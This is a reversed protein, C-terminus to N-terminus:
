GSVTTDRSSQFERRPELPRNSGSSQVSSIPVVQIIRARRLCCLIKHYGEQFEPVKWAYIFTDALTTLCWVLRLYKFLEIRWIKPYKKSLFLYFISPLTGVLYVTLIIAILVTTKKEKQFNNQQLSNQSPYVIKRQKWLFLYIKLYCFTLICTELAYILLFILYAVLFFRGQLLMQYANTQKLESDAKFTYITAFLLSYICLGICLGLQRRVSVYKHYFESSTVLLCREVAISMIASINLTRAVVTIWVNFNSIYRLHVSDGILYLALSLLPLVGVFLGAFALFAIVVHTPTVKKIYRKVVIITLVNCALIFPSLIVMCMDSTFYLIPNEVASTGDETPEEDATGNLFLQYDDTIM